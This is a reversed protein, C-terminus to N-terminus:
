LQLFSYSKPIKPGIKCLSLPLEGAFTIEPNNSCSAIEPIVIKGTLSLM